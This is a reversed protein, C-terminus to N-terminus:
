ILDDDSMRSLAKLLTAPIEQVPVGLQLCVTMVMLTALAEPSDSHSRLSSRRIVEQVEAIIKQLEEPVIANM